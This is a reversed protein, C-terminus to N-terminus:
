DQDLFELNKDTFRIYESLNKNEIMGELESQFRDIYSKGLAAKQAEDFSDKRSEVKYDILSSLTLLTSPFDFYRPSGNQERYVSLIDRIRNEKDELSVLDCSVMALNENGDDFVIARAYLDDHIAESGKYRSGFGALWIGVYPTINVKSVGAKLSGM